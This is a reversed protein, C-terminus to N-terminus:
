KHQQISASIQPTNHQTNVLIDRNGTFNEHRLAMDFMSNQNDNEKRSKQEGILEKLPRFKYIRYNEKINMM